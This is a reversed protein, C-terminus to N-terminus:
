NSSFRDWGGRSRPSRAIAEELATYVQADSGQLVGDQNVGIADLMKEMLEQKEKTAPAIEFALVSQKSDKTESYTAVFDYPKLGHREALENVKSLIAVTINDLLM